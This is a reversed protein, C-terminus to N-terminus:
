RERKTRLKEWAADARMVRVRGAIAVLPQDRAWRARESPEVSDWHPGLSDTIQQRTRLAGELAVHVAPSRPDALGLGRLNVLLAVIRENVERPWENRLSIGLLYTLVATTVYIDELTRFPKVYESYGDGPLLADAAVPVGDFALRCHHIEPVFETAPMAEITVGPAGLDVRAVRLRNRGQEDTGISAAVLALGGDASMTAWKKRGNLVFGGIGDDVLTSEIAQPHGGGEETVSLSAVRDAPLSPDLRHLAAQYGAAFAYGVRDALVGGLVAQDIPMAWDQRQRRFAQWWEEMSQWSSHKGQRLQDIAWELLFSIGSADTLSM